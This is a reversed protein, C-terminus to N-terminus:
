ASQEKNKEEDEEICGPGISLPPVHSSSFEDLTAVEDSLTKGEQKFGRLQDINLVPRDNEYTATQEKPQEFGPRWIELGSDFQGGVADWDKWTSLGWVRCSPEFDDANGWNQSGSLTLVTRNAIAEDVLVKPNDLSGPGGFYDDCLERFETIKTRPLLGGIVLTTWTMETM